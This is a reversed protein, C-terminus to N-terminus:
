LVNEHLKSSSRDFVHAFEERDEAYRAELSTGQDVVYEFM